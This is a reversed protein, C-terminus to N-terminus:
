PASAPAEALFIVHRTGRQERAAVNIMRASFGAARLRELYAVDPGASWVTLRGRPTLAQLCAKVGAAAYLKANGQHAVVSPGNDVDLLVADFAARSRQLLTLVSGGSVQVRPDELAQQTLAGLHARHWQVVAPVLESVTVKTDPTVRNLVERLTFGLGLGGVLVHRVAHLGALAHTALREESGHTRSTMLVRNDVRVVWEGDREVLTLASGDPAVAADVQRFPKM